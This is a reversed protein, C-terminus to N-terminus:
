FSPQKKWVGYIMTMTSQGFQHEITSTELCEFEFKQQKDGLIRILEDSKKDEWNGNPKVVFIFLGDKALHRIVQEFLGDLSAVHQLLNIACIADYENAVCLDNVDCCLFNLNRKKYVNKATRLREFDRDVGLVSAAKQSLQYAGWGIGSGLDLVKRKKIFPIINRYYQAHKSLFEDGKIANNIEKKSITM